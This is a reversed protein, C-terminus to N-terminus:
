LWYSCHLFFSTNMRCREGGSPICSFLLEIQFDLVDLHRSHAQLHAIDMCCSGCFYVGHKLLVKKLILNCFLSGSILYHKKKKKKRFFLNIHLSEKIFSSIALSHCHCITVRQQPKAQKQLRVRKMNKFWNIQARCNLPSNHWGCQQKSDCVASSVINWWRVLSGVDTKSVDILFTSLYKDKFTRKRFSCAPTQALKQSWSWSRGKRAHFNRWLHIEALHDSCSLHCGTKQSRIWMFVPFLEKWRAEM